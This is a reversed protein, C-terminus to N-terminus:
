SAYRVEQYLLEMAQALVVAPTAPFAFETTSSVGSWRPTEGSLTESYIESQLLTTDVVVRHRQRDLPAWRHPDSNSFIVVSNVRLAAALHSVGTDNCVLLQAHTLLAAIAGLQTKGALDISPFQMAQQVRRTLEMEAATGTLVVQLGQAALADAVVAFQEPAWRRSHVSAGPHICVYHGPNLGYEIAIARWTQWDTETVPFELEDGQLPMGLFELLRLHRWIEPEHDPYPLFSTVDPCYQGTPFFGATQKAGLLLAFTNMYTGSGHLQLVLDFDCQQVQTLFAVIQQPMLPVESIGPCGPFELFHDFYHSFRQVFSTAWPLGILTIQADPFALRLARMAPILCLLDGLGPLSRVVVVQKPLPQRLRHNTNLRAEM